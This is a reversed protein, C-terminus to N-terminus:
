RLERRFPNPTRRRGCVVNPVANFVCGLGTHCCGFRAGPGPHRDRADSRPIVLNTGTRLSRWPCVTVKASSHTWNPHLTSPRSRAKSGQGAGGVSCRVPRKRQKLGPRNRRLSDGNQAALTAMAQLSSLYRNAFLDGKASNLRWGSKIFEDFVAQFRPWAERLLAAEGCREAYFRAVALNAFPHPLRDGGVAVISPRCGSGNGATALKCHTTRRSRLLPHDHWEQPAARPKLRCHRRCTRGRGLSPKLCSGVTTSPFSVAQWVRIAFCPLGIGRCLTRQLVPWSEASRKSLVHRLRPPPMTSGLSALHWRNSRGAPRGPDGATLCLIRSGTQWYIRNGALAIGGRGARAM